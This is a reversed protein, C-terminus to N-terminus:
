RATWRSRALRQRPNLGAVVLVAPLSLANVAFRLDLPQGPSVGIRGEAHARAEGWGVDMTRLSIMAPSYSLQSSLALTGAPAVNLM